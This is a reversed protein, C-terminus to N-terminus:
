EFLNKSPWKEQQKNSKCYYKDTNNGRKPVVVTLAIIIRCRGRLLHYHRIWSPLHCSSELLKITSIASIKTTKERALKRITKACDFRFEWLARSLCSWRWPYNRKYNGIWWISNASIVIIKHSIKYTLNEYLTSLFRRSVNENVSSATFNNVFIDNNDQITM